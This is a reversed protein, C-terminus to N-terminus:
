QRVDASSADSVHALLDQYREMTGVDCWYGTYLEGTLQGRSVADDFVLRLKFSDATVDRVLEPRMVMVSAWTRCDGQHSLRGSTEIAFDGDPHHPPNGVMVLHALSDAVMESPLQELPYDIFVDASIVIFPSDGLMPLARKIGGGTELLEKERSYVVSVGYRSGDGLREVVQEALHHVNIIVDRIGAAALRVLHREILTTGDVELLPKPTTETLPRLRQGLGAALLMAKM